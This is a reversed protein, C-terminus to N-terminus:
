IACHGLRSVNIYPAPGKSYITYNDANTIGLKKAGVDGIPM